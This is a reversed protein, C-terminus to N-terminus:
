QHTAEEYSPLAEATATSAGATGGNSTGVGLTSSGKESPQQRRPVPGAEHRWSVLLPRVSKFKLKKGACLVVARTKLHYAQSISFTTFDPPIETARPGDYSVMKTWNEAANFPGLPGSSSYYVYRFHEPDYTTAGGM